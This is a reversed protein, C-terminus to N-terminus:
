KQLLRRTEAMIDGITKFSEMDAVQFRIGLQMEVGAIFMVYQLSDWDPVDARTTAATLVISDNGLLVRYNIGAESIFPRVAQWGDEDMSIGVVAFGQDKHEREFDIFWPIEIKCPGCWTAWFNLLVVKGRYDSLQVTKGDADKLSFDPAPKRDGSAKVRSSSRCAPTSCAGILVAIAPVAWGTKKISHFFGLTKYSM